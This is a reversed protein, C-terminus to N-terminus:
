KRKFKNNKKKQAHVFYKCREPDIHKYINELRIPIFHINYAVADLFLSFFIM